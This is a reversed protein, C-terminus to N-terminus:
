EQNKKQGIACAMWRIIFIRISNTIKSRIKSSGKKM